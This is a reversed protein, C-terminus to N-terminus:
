IVRVAARRVRQFDDHKERENWLYKHGWGREVDKERLGRSLDMLRASMYDLGLYKYHLLKVRPKAPRKVVGKPDAKHRGVSFNIERIHDPAFLQPKDMRRFRAGMRVQECLPPGGTPFTDSIMEYGEPVILTIGRHRCRALYRPLDPHHLHEDINCVIVWDTKGRSRKWCEDYFTRAAELFSPGQVSFHELTVKPHRELLDLSGDTSGNDFIHYRDVLADYHRFFHPLM